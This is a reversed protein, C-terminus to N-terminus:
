KAGHAKAPRAHEYMQHALREALGGEYLNFHDRGPVFEFTADSGIRALEKQLLGAPVELHFTDDAGVVIHIKGKLKPGLRSWNKTLVRSIDYKEWAKAVFPDITGTERDFLPMPRGDDGKPSFVAEFSAFQGGYDGLVGELLAFERVSMINQGQMRVLNRATGDAADYVNETEPQTLDPGTFSRFDTPDPSTSWTGGFFDPYTVQLWLTAWGGSSHGTLLRGNAVADMRFLKEIHPIFETTLARGWPGNNASDAFVHHGLPCTADLVVYIMEPTSGDKMKALLSPAQRWANRYSGGYGHILYVTPYRRKPSTAYSPPLIVGARMQISRGWFETLSPSEFTVFKIADTEAPAPRDIRKSLTLAVASSSAPDFAPVTAIDSYLDGDGAESYAFSHDVDLLAQIHCEGAPIAALSRPFAKINAAIDIKESPKLNHIELGAIFVSELNEYSPGLMTQTGLPNRSLFVLLRGSVPQAALDPAVTVTILAGRADSVPASRVLTPQVFAVSALVFACLLRTASKM